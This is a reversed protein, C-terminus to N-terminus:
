ISSVSCTCTPQLVTLERIHPTHTRTECCTHSLGEKDHGRELHDLNPELLLLTDILALEQVLYM